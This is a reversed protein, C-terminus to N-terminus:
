SGCRAWLGPWPMTGATAGSTCAGPERDARCPGVKLV